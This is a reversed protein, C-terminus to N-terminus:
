ASAPRDGDPAAAPKSNRKVVPATLMAVRSMFSADDGEALLPAEAGVADLVADLWVRDAKSFDRLVVADDFSLRQEEAVHRAARLARQQRSSSTAQPM